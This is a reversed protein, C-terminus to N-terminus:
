KKIKEKNYIAEEIHIQHGIDNVDELENMNNYMKMFIMNFPNYRSGSNRFRIPITYLTHFDRDYGDIHPQINFELKFIEEEKKIKLYNAVEYSSEDSYWTITKNDKDFLDNYHSHNFLRYYGKNREIMNKREKIYKQKEEEDLYLPFSDMDFINIDEIDSYLTEFLTYLKYNEKTIVFSNDLMTNDKRLTWYLDGNAGFRIALCKDNDYLFVELGDESQNKVVEM